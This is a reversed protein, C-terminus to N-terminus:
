TASSPMCHQLCTLAFADSGNEVRLVFHRSCTAVAWVEGESLFDTVELVDEGIRRKDFPIFLNKTNVSLNSTQFM